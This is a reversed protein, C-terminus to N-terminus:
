KNCLIIASKCLCQLSVSEFYATLTDASTEDKLLDRTGNVEDDFNYPGAGLYRDANYGEAIFAATSDIVPFINEETFENEEAVITENLSDTRFESPVEAKKRLFGLTGFSTLVFVTVLPLMTGVWKKM